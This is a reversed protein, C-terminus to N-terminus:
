CAAAAALAPRAVAGLVALAGSLAWVQGDRDGCTNSVVRVEAFRAGLREAVLGVAFGEMAEYRAGTRRVIEAAAADTGSCSSVTAIVAGRDIGSSSALGAADGVKLASFAEGLGTVLPATGGVSVPGLNMQALDQWGGPTVVGEDAAVSRSAIVVRGILARDRQSLVGCVGLNLVTVPGGVKLGVKSGMLAGLAHATAGAASAKGVGSLVLWAGDLEARGLSEQLDLPTWSRELRVVFELAARPECGLGALLALAESRHAVVLLRPGVGGHARPENM